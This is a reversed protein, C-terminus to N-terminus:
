ACVPGDSDGETASKLGGFTRGPVCVPVGASGTASGSGGSGMGSGVSPDLFGRVSTRDSGSGALTFAGSTRDGVKAVSAFGATTMGAAARSDSGFSVASRDAVARCSGDTLRTHNPGVAILDPTGASNARQARLVDDIGSCLTTTWTRTGSPA